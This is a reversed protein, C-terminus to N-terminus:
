AAEPSRQELAATPLSLGAVRTLFWRHFRLDLTLEPHFTIGVVRGSQVGVPESAGHEATRRAIVAVGSGVRTIRPARIFVGLLGEGVEPADVPGTFSHVQRGYSNREVAVDLVGLTERPLRDAQRALLIV